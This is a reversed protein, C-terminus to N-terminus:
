CIQKLMNQTTNNKNLLKVFNVISSCPLNLINHTITNVFDSIKNFSLKCHINLFTCIAKLENGYQVDSQLESPVIFKGENNAHIRYETATVIVDTDLKYKTIYKNKENGIHKIIHKFNGNKIGNEVFDKSLCYGKHGRQGGPKKSYKERNNPIDKKNSKIDSSPPLSSNDSNNNIQSKLRDVENNLKANQEKLEKNEKRLVAVENELKDIKAEYKKREEDFRANLKITVDRTVEKKVHKLEQSLSDCKAMVEQLQKFMNNRYDSVM